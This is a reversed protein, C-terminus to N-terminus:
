RRGGAIAAAARPLSMKVPRRRAPRALPPIITAQVGTALNRLGSSAAMYRGHLLRCECEIHQALADLGQHSVGSGPEFEAHVAAVHGQLVHLDHMRGLLDQARKLTRVQGAAATVGVGAALELGYRLKKTAIRVQHLREPAYMQGAEDITGALREARKVIRAGLTDRWQENTAAELAEGVSGLRRHLKEVNVRDLRKLMAERGADREGIVRARVAEVASRPVGEVRALEDLIGLTVDLERVAGLAQTLRRIKRRAKGAKSGKLGGALIPVAERLRRSAVRAQHVGTDDGSVASPLHRKLERAIRELLRTTARVHGVNM